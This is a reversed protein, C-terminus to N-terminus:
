VKLRKWKKQLTNLKLNYRIKNLTPEALFVKAYSGKGLFDDTLIYGARKCDKIEFEELTTINNAKPDIKNSDKKNDDM